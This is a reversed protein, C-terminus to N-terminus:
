TATGCRGGGPTVKTLWPGEEQSLTHRGYGESSGVFSAV